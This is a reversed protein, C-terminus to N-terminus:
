SFVASGVMPRQSQGAKAKAAALDRAFFFLAVLKAILAIAAVGSGMVAFTASFITSITLLVVVKRKYRVDDDLHKAEIAAEEALLVDLAVLPSADDHAVGLYELIAADSAGTRRMEMAHDRRYRNALADHM